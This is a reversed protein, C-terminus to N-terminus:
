PEKGGVKWAILLYLRLDHGAHRRKPSQDVTAEAPMLALLAACTGVRLFRAARSDGVPGLLPRALLPLGALLLVMTIVYVRDGPTALQGVLGALGGPRWAAAERVADRQRDPACCRKGRSCGSGAQGGPWGPWDRPM